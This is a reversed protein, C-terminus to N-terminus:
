SSVSLGGPMDKVLHYNHVQFAHTYDEVHLANIPVFKPRATTGSTTAFMFPEQCTLQNGQGQKLREIYPEFYEYNSPPVLRRYDEVSNIRDFGHAKGFASNRNRRVISLLKEEQTRACSKLGKYFRQVHTARRWCQGAIVDLNKWDSVKM